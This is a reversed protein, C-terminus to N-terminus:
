PPFFGSLINRLFFIVSLLLGPLDLDDALTILYWCLSVQVNVVHVYVIHVNVIHVNVIHINTYLSYVHFSIECSVSSSTRFTGFVVLLAALTMTVVLCVYTWCIM